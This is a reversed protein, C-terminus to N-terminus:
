KKKMKKANCENYASGQQMNGGVRTWPDVWRVGGFIVIQNKKPFPESEHTWGIKKKLSFEPGMKKCWMRVGGEPGIPEFLIICNLQPFSQWQSVRPEEKPPHHHGSGGGGPLSGLSPSQSGSGSRHAEAEGMGLSATYWDGTWRPWTVCLATSSAHWHLKDRLKLLSPRRWCPAKGGGLGLPPMLALITHQEGTNCMASATTRRLSGSSLTQRTSGAPGGPGQWLCRWCSCATPPPRCCAACRVPGRWRWCGTRGGARGRGPRGASGLGPRGPAKSQAKSMTRRRTQRHGTASHILSHDLRQETKNQREKKKKELIGSRENAQADLEGSHQRHPLCPLPHTPQHTPPRPPAPGHTTCEDLCCKRGAPPHGREKGDSRWLNGQHGGDALVEDRAPLHLFLQQEPFKQFSGPPSPDLRRTSFPAPQSFTNASGGLSSDLPPPAPRVHDVPQIRITGPPFGM